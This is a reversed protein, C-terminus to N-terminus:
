DGKEGCLCAFVSSCILLFVSLAQSIWCTYYFIKMFKGTMFQFISDDATISKELWDAESMGDPVIDGSAYRGEIRFRWIIGMIWWALMSCGCAMMSFGGVLKGCKIHICHSILTVMAIPLPALAMVFGWLSWNVFWTHVDHVDSADASLALDKTLYLAHQGAADDASKAELRGYWAPSEPNALGFIGLFTITTLITMTVIFGVACTAMRRGASGQTLLCDM